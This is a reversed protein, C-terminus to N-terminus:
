VFNHEALFRCVAEVGEDDGRLFVKEKYPITKAWTRVVRTLSGGIGAEDLRFALDENTVIRIRDDVDLDLDAYRVFPLKYATNRIM